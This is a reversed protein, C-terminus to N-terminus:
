FNDIKRVHVLITGSPPAPPHNGAYEGGGRGHDVMTIYIVSKDSLPPQHTPVVEVLGGLM